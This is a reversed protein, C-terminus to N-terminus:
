GTANLLKRIRFFSGNMDLLDVVSTTFTDTTWNIRTTTFPEKYM